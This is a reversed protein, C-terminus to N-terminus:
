VNSHELTLRDFWRGMARDVREVTALTWTAPSLLAISLFRWVEACLVLALCRLLFLPRTM